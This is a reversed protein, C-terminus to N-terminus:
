ADHLSRESILKADRLKQALAVAMEEPSEGDVLEVQNNVEPIYLRELTLRSGAAGM